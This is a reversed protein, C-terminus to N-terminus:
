DPKATMAFIAVVYAAVLVFSLVGAIRGLVSEAGNARLKRVALGALVTTVIMVLLGLDATVYGIGIWAAEEDFPAESETWQAGIRMVVYSPFAGVLLTWFAFRTLVVHEGGEGRRWAFLLAVAAGLLLGVLLMAGLVHVFLSLEWDRSAIALM